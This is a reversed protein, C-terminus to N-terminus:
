GLNLDTSPSTMEQCFIVYVGAGSNGSGILLNKINKM